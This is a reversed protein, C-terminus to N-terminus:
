PQQANHCLDGEERVLVASRRVALCIAIVLAYGDECGRTRIGSNMSFVPM